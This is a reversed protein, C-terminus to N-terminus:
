CCRRRRSSSSAASALAACASTLAPLVAPSRAFFALRACWHYFLEQMVAWGRGDIYFDEEMFTWLWNEVEGFVTRDSSKINYDFAQAVNATAVGFKSKMGQLEKQLGDWVNRYGVPIAERDLKSNFSRQMKALHWDVLEKMLVRKLTHFKTNMKAVTTLRPDDASMTDGDAYKNREAVEKAEIEEGKKQFFPSLLNTYLQGSAYAHEKLVRRPEIVLDGEHKQGYSALGGSAMSALRADSRQEPSCNFSDFSVIANTIASVQEQVYSDRNTVFNQLKNAALPSNVDPREGEPVKERLFLSLLTNGPKVVGAVPNPFSMDFLNLKYPDSQVSFGAKGHMNTNRMWDPLRFAHAYDVADAPEFYSDVSLQDPHVKLLEGDVDVLGACLAEQRKANFVWEYSLPHTCGLHKDAIYPKSLINKPVKYPDKPDYSLDVPQRGDCNLTKGGYHPLLKRFDSINTVHRYCMGSADELRATALSSGLLAQTAKASTVVSVKRKANQCHASGSHRFEEASENMLKNALESTSHTHDFVFHWVRLALVATRDENYLDEVGILLMPVNMTKDTPSQMQYWKVSDVPKPAKKKEHEEEGGNQPEELDKLRSIEEHAGSVMGKSLPAYVTGLIAAISAARLCSDNNPTQWDGFSTADSSFVWIPINFTMARAPVMGDMNADAYKVWGGGNSAAENIVPPLAKIGDGLMVSGGGEQYGRMHRVHARNAESVAFNAGEERPGSANTVLDDQDDQVQHGGYPGHNLNSHLPPQVTDDPPAAPGLNRIEREVESQDMDSDEGFLEAQARAVSQESRGSHSGGYHGSARARARQQEARARESPSSLLSGVVSGSASGASGGAGNMSAALAAVNAESLSSSRSM